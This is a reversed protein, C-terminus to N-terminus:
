KMYHTSYYPSRGWSFSRNSKQIDVMM